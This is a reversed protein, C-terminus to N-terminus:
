RRERKQSVNITRKGSLHSQPLSSPQMTQNMGDRPRKSALVTELAGLRGEMKEFCRELRTSTQEMARVREQVRNEIDNLRKAHIESEIRDVRRGLRQDVDDANEYLMLKAERLQTMLETLLGNNLEHYRMGFAQLEQRIETISAMDVLADAEMLEVNDVNSLDLPQHYREVENSM